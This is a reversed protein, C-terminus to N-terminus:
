AKAAALAAAQKLWEDRAIRGRFGLQEDLGLIEAETLAAIQAYTRIGLGNLVKELKPGIGGIAKLDDPADPRAQARPAMHAEPAPNPAVPEAAVPVAAVSEDLADQRPAVGAALVTLRQAVELSSSVASMWVGFAHGAMGAGFAAMAASTAINRKVAEADGGFASPLAAALDRGIDQLKADMMKTEPLREPPVSGTSM